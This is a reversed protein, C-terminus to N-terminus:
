RLLCLRPTCHRTVADTLGMWRPGLPQNLCVQEENIRSYRDYMEPNDEVRQPYRAANGHLEMSNPTPPIMQQGPVYHQGSPPQPQSQSQSQQSSDQACFGPTMNPTSYPMPGVHSQVPGPGGSFDMALGEMPATYLHSRLDSPATAPASSTPPNVMAQQEHLQSHAAPGHGELDPFHMNFELFNSFEDENSAPILNEHLQGPWSMAPQQEM